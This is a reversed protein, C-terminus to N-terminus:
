VRVRGCLEVLSDQQLSATLSPTRQRSTCLEARKKGAM